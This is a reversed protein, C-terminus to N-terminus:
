SVQRRLKYQWWQNGKGAPQWGEASLKTVVENLATKAQEDDPGIAPGDNGGLFVTTSKAVVYVGRVGVANGVFYSKWGLFGAEKYGIECYERQPEAQAISRAADKAARGCQLGDRFV